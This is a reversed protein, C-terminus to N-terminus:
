AEIRLAGERLAAFIAATILDATTGPNRQHGKSRLWFDFDALQGNYAADGPEGSELVRAAQTASQAAEDAGLKRAILSDSYRSMETVHARVITDLLPWERAAGDTLLPVIEDLVVAFNEAYQRAVLDREAGARMAVLLDDPPADTVDHEDVEGLGGPQALSIAAYVDRADDKTLSELVRAVGSILETERPVTALPALLLVIGLNTNTSTVSRTARIADLVTQGVRVRQSAAEMAPAIAVGSALLDLYTLGEFDAGRHVNGPKPATAELICAMTACQGITLQTAADAM